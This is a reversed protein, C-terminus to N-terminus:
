ERLELQQVVVVIIILQFKHCISNSYLKVGWKVCIFKEQVGLEFEVLQKVSNAEKEKSDFM